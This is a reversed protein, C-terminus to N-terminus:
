KRDGGGGGGWTGMDRFPHTTMQDFEETWCSKIGGGGGESTDVLFIAPHRM